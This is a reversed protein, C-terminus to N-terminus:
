LAEAEAKVDEIKYQKACDDCFFLNVRGCPVKKTAPAPCGVTRTSVHTGNKKTKTVVDFGDCRVKGKKTTKSM